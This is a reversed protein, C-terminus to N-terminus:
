RPEAWLDAPTIALGPFDPHTLTGSQGAGDADVREFQRDRQRYCELTKGDPDVIWYHAVGLEAYRRFKLHRDRRVSSPSLIEVALLPPGEIGRSPARPHLAEVVLDPVVVDHHSLIVDLPAYFVEGIHRPAFYDELIRFLRRSVRQHLRNPSPTVYHIGDILEHRQGDDPFHVFDDYTLKTVPTPEMDNGGDMVRSRLM